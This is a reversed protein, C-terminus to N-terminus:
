ELMAYRKRYPGRRKDDESIKNSENQKEPIFLGQKYGKKPIFLGFKLSRPHKKQFVSMLIEEVCMNCNFHFGSTEAENKTFDELPLEIQCRKCRKTKTKMTENNKNIM